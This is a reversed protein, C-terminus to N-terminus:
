KVLIYRASLGPVSVNGSFSEGSILDTGSGGIDFSESGTGYNFAIYITEGGGQKKAVYFSSTNRVEQNTGGWLAEHGARAALCDRTFDHIKQEWTTFGSIKGSSRAVNDAYWGGGNSNDASRAGIEDGYYITIPGSYAIQAALLVMNRKAYTENDCGYRKQILDGIRYLDHNTLMLNPYYTDYQGDDDKCSYGKKEYTQYTYALASGINGTYKGDWEQAFGQVLQYYAPFDFCSNLGYGPASGAVVSGKQILAADGRWHEGVMYGLTGWDQGKTGNSTAAAEIEKRIDYWYNHGGTNCNDDITGKANEGFAVQYCQDFRWGDIKYNKIWYTAVEKFFPLSAPYDCAKYQGHSRTPNNGNPSRATGREGWHGFVGDLIVAMGKSHYVDVLEAFKENTGFQDDINFYDYAFYGTSDLEGGGNSEFIPTMWLANCGLDKIYDVANIIGQLDGGKLANSPGYARTFGRSPDGDQFSSVMVQYIRLENPDSVIKNVPKESVVIKGTVSTSGADNAVSGSVSLTKATTTFKDVNFTNNGVKLTVSQGGITINASTLDTSSSVTITFTGGVRASTPINVTPPQPSEPNQEYWTGTPKESSDGIFWWEGVTRTLDGTQGDWSGVSTKFIMKASTVNLTYTYWDNGESTMEYSNTSIGTTDYIYVAKYNKAHVIIKDTVPQVNITITATAVSSDECGSKVAIAKVTTTKSVSIPSTYKTSSDTPETGDTTYYIDAGSTGCEIKVSQAVAFTGSAPTIVPTEVIDKSLNLTYTATEVSSKLGGKVAVAEITHSGNTTLSIAGSYLTTPEQGPDTTYYILAGVTNSTITISANNSFNEGSAPNFVPASVSDKKIEFNVTVVTSKKDGLKVVAKLTYSKADAFPIEKEYKTSSETPEKGDLTYYVTGEGNPNSISVTVDSNYVAGETVGTIGPAKLLDASVEYTATKVDSKIFNGASDSIYAVASVTMTENIIVPKSDSYLSSNTDPSRGDTTYFIGCGSSNCTIKLVEGSAVKIGDSLSFYLPTVKTQVPALSVSKTGNEVAVTETTKFYEVGANDQFSFNFTYNGAAALDYSFYEGNRYPFIKSEVNTACDVVVKTIEQPLNTVVSFNVGPTQSEVDIAFTQVSRKMTFAKEVSFLSKGDAGLATVKITYDGFAVKTFKTQTGKATESNSKSGQVLDVKWGGEPEFDNVPRLLVTLTGDSDPSPLSVSPEEVGGSCAIIFLMMGLIFFVNKIIKKM